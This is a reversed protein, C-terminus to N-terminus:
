RPADDTTFAAVPPAGARITRNKGARKAAYLAADAAAVLAIPDGDASAAVGCSVTIRLTGRGDLRSLELAEVLTRVREAIAEAGALDTQQLAVALEEGGYRAPEDVERTCDRLIRAVERLVVDGQQHGYTDNVRKFDDIDLMVLGLPQDFRRAAAAEAAIVQQFRGHNFLGTLEDTVAQRAVQDHLDVNELSIGTQRALSAVLEREADTFPNGRRAVSVIGRSPGADGEGGRQAIPVALASTDGVTAAAAASGGHERAPAEAAAIAAASAGALDGVRAAELLEGDGGIRITARGCQAEVADVITQTGIELLATRDLNAAFTAGVRQISERLRAREQDLERLRSELEHSMDNFERGLAAFEDNGEIPVTASFDGGGIRKAVVLFRELQGHLQRSILLAGAFALLLFLVLLGIAIWQGRTAASAAASTDTLVVVSTARGGFDRATFTAVTYEVGGLTVTGHDPLHTGSPLPVPLTSALLAGDRRVVTRVGPVSTTRAFGDASLTSAEITVPGPTAGHGAATPAAARVRVVGRAIASKDGVDALVKGDRLLRVRVIGLRAALAAARARDDTTPPTRLAAALAADHALARADRTGASSLRQFDAVAAAASARNQASAKAHQSDSVLRAVVVGLAIMPVVVILVFFLTLRTRFSM